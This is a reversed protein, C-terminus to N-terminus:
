SAAAARSWTMNSLDIGRVQYIGGTLEFLGPISTLQSQRWLSPNVSDPCEGALTQVFQEADYTFWVAM